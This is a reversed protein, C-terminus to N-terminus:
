RRRVVLTTTRARPFIDRGTSLDTTHRMHILTNERESGAGQKWCEGKYSSLGTGSEDVRSGM